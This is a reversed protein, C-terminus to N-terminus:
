CMGYKIKMLLCIMETILSNMMIKWCTVELIFLSEKPLYITREIIYEHLRGENRDIANRVLRANPKKYVFRAKM